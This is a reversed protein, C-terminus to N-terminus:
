YAAFLGRPVRPTGRGAWVSMCALSPFMGNTMVRCVLNRLLLLIFVHRAICTCSSPGGVEAYRAIIAMCSQGRM